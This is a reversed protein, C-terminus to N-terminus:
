FIRLPYNIMLQANNFSKSPYLPDIRNFYLYFAIKMDKFAGSQVLYAAKAAWEYRGGRAPQGSKWYLDHQPDDPNGHVAAGAAADGGWSHVTFATLKLGPIGARGGDFIYRLQVSREHPANYDVGMANALYVGATENTYDFFQDGGISQYGLLVSSAGQQATLSLGLARNDIDGAVRAGTAETIYSDIRGTLTVDNGVPVGKSASVYYQNWLNSAHNVYVAMSVDRTRTELGAYSIRDFAIGGYATSLGRVHDDGRPIAGDFSGAQLTMGAVDTSVLSLGRFTPPLARIDYPPLFPNDVGEQVGYRILTKGVKAKLAYEGAYGWAHDGSGSGDFRYHAMNHSGGGGDLRVAGYLGVDAGVSVGSGSGIYDSQYILRGSQIVAHRRAGNLIQLEEAYTRLLLDMRGPIKGPGAQPAAEADAHAPASAFAFLIGGCALIRATLNKTM